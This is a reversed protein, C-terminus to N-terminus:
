TFFDSLMTTTISVIIFTFAIITIIPPQSSKQVNIDIGKISIITHNFSQSLPTHYYEGTWQLVLFDALWLTVLYNGIHLSLKWFLSRNIRLETVILILLHLFTLVDRIYTTHNKKEECYCFSMKRTKSLIDTANEPDLFIMFQTLWRM